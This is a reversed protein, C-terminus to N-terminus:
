DEIEFRLSDIDIGPVHHLIGSERMAHEIATSAGNAAPPIPVRWEQLIAWKMVLTKGAYPNLGDGGGPDKKDKSMAKRKM